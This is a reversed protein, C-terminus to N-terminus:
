TGINVRQFVHSLCLPPPTGGADVIYRRLGLGGRTRMSCLHFFFLPTITHRRRRHHAELARSSCAAGQGGKEDLVQQVSPM